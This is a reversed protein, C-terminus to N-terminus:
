SLETAVCWFSPHNASINVVARQAAELDSYLGFCTAGSGSMRAFDANHKMLIELSEAIKPELAIANEELDNRQQSLWAVLHFPTDFAKPIVTMGANDKNVLRKFIQPTSVGVRPNILVVSMKPMNSIPTIVDGIGQMRCTRSEVCVPVDAGLGLITDASPGITKLVKCAARIVAAADASGGGIGSAVPLNKTLKIKLPVDFLSAAKFIINDTDAGLDSSFPGIIELSTEDAIEVSIEDGFKTFAVLSDLLHYGDERQGTIHLALNIKAQATESIRM